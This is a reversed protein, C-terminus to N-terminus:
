DIRRRMTFSSGNRSIGFVHWLMTELCMDAMKTPVAAELSSRTLFDDRFSCDITSVATVLSSVYARVEPDVVDRKGDALEM